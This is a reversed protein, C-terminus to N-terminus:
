IHVVYYAITAREAMSYDYSYRMVSYLTSLAFGTILTKGANKM